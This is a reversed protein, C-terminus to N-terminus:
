SGLGELHRVFELMLEGDEEDFLEGVHVFGLRDVIALSAVNDPTITARVRAIGQGRLWDLFERVMETALGRGRYPRDVFYGIEVTTGEPHQEPGDHCGIRACVHSGDLRVHVLYPASREDLDLAHVRHVLNHRDEHSWDIELGDVLAHGSAHLSRIQSADLAVLSV